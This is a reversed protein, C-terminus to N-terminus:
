APVQEPMTLWDGSHPLVGGSRVHALPAEYVTEMDDPLRYLCSLAYDLRKITVDLSEIATECDAIVRLAAAITAKDDKAAAAIESCAAEYDAVARARVAGSQCLLDTAIDTMDAGAALMVQDDYVPLSQASLSAPRAGLTLAAGILAGTAEPMVGAAWAGANLGAIDRGLEAADGRLEEAMPTLSV